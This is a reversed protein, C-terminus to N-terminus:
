IEARPPVDVSVITGASGRAISLGAALAEVLQSVIRGGLSGEDPWTLGQPLGVGDDSIQLRLTGNSLAKLRMEVMGAERDVFAHQMANTMLESTILGLRTADEFPLSVADVDINVRVGRRGDIHAIANAVRSLYSGLSVPARNSSGDKVAESMEEYLLQLAEIRHSLTEFEERASSARAQVRIMGVIMSLHNKVRHQIESLAADLERSRVEPPKPGDEPLAMQVGLFYRPRNSDDTLPAIMLRNWFATGDARYNRLDTTVSRGQAVGDRLADLSERDTDPGQLFRCNRGIAAARSYGTVETFADNVYVIPNDAQRPDTLVMAFPAKTLASLAIQGSELPLSTDDLPTTM